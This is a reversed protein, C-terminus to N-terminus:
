TLMVGLDDGPIYDMVLFQGERDVFHDIVRPLAPHRLNALLQAEHEFARSLQEGALLMQKLAVRGKLRQDVAEYVAGFGGQAIPGLIRYRNQLITGPGLM